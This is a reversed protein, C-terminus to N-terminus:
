LINEKKQRYNDEVKNLIISQGYGLTAGVIAGSGGAIGASIATALLPAAM